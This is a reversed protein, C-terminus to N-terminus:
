SLSADTLRKIEAAKIAAIKDMQAGEDLNEIQEQVKKMVIVGDNFTPDPLREPLGELLTDLIGMAYDTKGDKIATIVKELIKRNM